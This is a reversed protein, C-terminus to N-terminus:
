DGTDTEEYFGRGNGRHRGLIGAPTDWSSGLMSVCTHVCVCLVCVYLGCVCVHGEWNRMKEWLGWGTSGGGLSWSKLAALGSPYQTKFGPLKKKKKFAFM